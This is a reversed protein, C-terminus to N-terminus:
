HRPVREDFPPVPAGRVNRPILLHAVSASMDPARPPSDAIRATMSLGSLNNHNRSRFGAWAELSISQFISASPAYSRANTARAGHWDRPRLFERRHREVVHPQINR